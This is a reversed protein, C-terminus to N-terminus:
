CQPNDQEAALRMPVDGVATRRGTTVSVGTVRGATYQCRHEGSGLWADPATVKVTLGSATTIPGSLVFRGDADSTARALEDGSRDFLQVLAGSLAYTPDAASVVRGGVSAGRKTLRVSGFAARGSRVSSRVKLTQGVYDGAGPVMVKYGGPHLGAFTVSGRKVKASWWQGTKTSVATVTGRGPYTASGAYVDVLLSGARTRLRPQVDTYSGAKVKGLYVSKAVWAKKRDYTFVSYKGVPLGGLAFRGKKDATTEFSVEDTNAAVVRAAAGVKTRAGKGVKVVGGIAAGRRMRINKVTTSAARVVVKVTTPANRKVDYVPARDTFQLWYTGPRLALSYGGGDAKKSGLYTWDSAFWSLRTKPTATGQQVIAGRVRGTEVAQAPSAPMLLALPALVLGLVLLLAVRAHAASSRRPTRTM